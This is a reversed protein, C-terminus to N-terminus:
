SAKLFKIPNSHGKAKIYYLGNALDSVNLEFTGTQFSQSKVMQGLVNYVQLTTTVKEFPIFGELSHNVVTKFVEIQTKGVAFETGSLVIDKNTELQLLVPLHDSMNYLNNRLQQSYSGSCDFDNVSDNYCNGNNGFAKYSNEVYRLTPDTLMNESVLIFDFRDDMGGGAGAGFTGSSERTSQTHIDQFNFNSNWNGPRDIPDKMVIANTPDLLEQYAPEGSSYVNLDGAFIVYANPNLGQLRSTFTEVMELRLAENSPGQSAKLHAVYLELLIPDESQDDTNFRFVYRNIDRISTTIVESFVLAMKDSRYYVLQQLNSPSSQNYFFPAQAYRQEEYNLSNNLIQEAGDENQLECVMFIDPSAEDLIERLILARDNPFAEPFELLNYFMTTITEQAMCPVAVWALLAVALSRINPSFTLNM